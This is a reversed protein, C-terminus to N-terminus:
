KLQARSVLAFLSNQRNVLNFYIQAPHAITNSGQPNLARVSYSYIVVLFKTGREECRVSSSFFPVQTYRLYTIM